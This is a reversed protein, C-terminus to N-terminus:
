DTFSNDTNVAPAIITESDKEIICEMGVFVFPKLLELDENRLRICGESCRSGISEPFCTGHIGIGTFSPIRLRFFWRGYAGKRKGNGDQFDHIWKSSNEISCIKFIGEPTKNDNKSMKNGFSMGCGIPLVLLTDKKDNLVYLRLSDKSILLYNKCM